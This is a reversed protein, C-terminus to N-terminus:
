EKSYCVGSLRVYQDNAECGTVCDFWYEIPSVGDWTLKGLFDKLLYGLVQELLEPFGVLRILEPYGALALDDQPGGCIDDDRKSEDVWDAYVPDLFEVMRKTDITFVFSHRFMEVRASSLSMDPLAFRVPPVSINDILLSLIPNM